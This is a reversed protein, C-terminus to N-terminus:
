LAAIGGSGGFNNSTLSNPFYEVPELHYTGNPKIRNLISEVSIQNKTSGPKSEIM